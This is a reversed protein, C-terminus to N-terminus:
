RERGRDFLSLQSQRAARLRVPPGCLVWPRQGYRVAMGHYFGHPDARAAAADATKEQYTQMRGEFVEPDILRYVEHEGRSQGLHKQGVSVWEGGRWSFPRRVRGALGIRDASYSATVEGIDGGFEEPEPQPDPLPETQPEAPPELRSEPQSLVTADSQVSEAACVETKPGAMEALHERVGDIIGCATKQIRTLSASLTDRDGQYLGIYDSAASGVDLGFSECVVHAVAEAETERVSKPPRDQKEVNQHLMEHALEHALVGFAAAPALGGRIKIRGGTSLGDAGGLDADEVLEIGRGAIVSRLADMAGSADGSVRAPEPLPDGETQSVDFVHVVRFRLVSQADDNTEEREEKKKIRMPAFIAIGKEGKNVTRGLKRWTHFGAVRTAEPRQTLILMLNQFSYRHFRGMAKLFVEMQESNGADLSDALRDLSADVELRIRATKESRESTAGGKM